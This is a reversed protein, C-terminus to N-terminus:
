QNVSKQWTNNGRRVDPFNQGPDIEVRVVEAPVKREYVFHNDQFWIEVPLRVDDAAGNAYSLRLDVPMPLAGPSSLFVAATTGTSDSRMRVSDVAQDVVDTRYFWGRWFWSLDEGLGDEMSRFFDAPTPHKYAWRRIYERFAADFRGTDALIHQR